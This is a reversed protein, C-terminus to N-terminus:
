LEALAPGLQELQEISTAFEGGIPPLLTVHDAGATLHEYASAAIDAPDGHAVLANVLRDSVGEIDGASYGLEALRAAYSPAGLRASVAERAAQSDRAVSMGVVLLKGPGLLRRARATFVPPLGAPFAGDALEGALALMKPGNAAVIRAYTADPAPPWTPRYMRDLYDRMTVLASGFQQGVSTAQQPYGVGLGLVIRGPYAQALQAAASHMTQAARAWINAICTGFVVRESDALLTALQVLADKGIVENTWVTRYGARELRGVAERQMEISPSSTFSAPLCVGMPGLVKRAEDVVFGAVADSM